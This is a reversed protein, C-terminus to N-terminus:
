GDGSRPTDGAAPIRRHIDDLLKLMAMRFIQAQHEGIFATHGFVELVVLGHMHGWREAPSRGGTAIILRKRSCSAAPAPTSSATRCITLVAPRM